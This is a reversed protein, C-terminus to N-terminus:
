NIQVPAYRLPQLEPQRHLAVNIEIAKLHHMSEVYVVFIIVYVDFRSQNRDWGLRQFKFENLPSSNLKFKLIFNIELSTEIFEDSTPSAIVLRLITFGSGSNSSLCLWGFCRKM